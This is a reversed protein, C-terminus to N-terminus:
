VRISIPSAGTPSLQSRLFLSRRSGARTIGLGQYFPSTPLSLNDRLPSVVPRSPHCGLGTLGAGGAAEVAPFSPILEPRLFIPLQPPLSLPKREGENM